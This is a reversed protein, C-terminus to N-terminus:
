PIEAELNAVIHGGGRVAVGLDHEAAFRVAAQVDTLSAAGVAVRLRLPTLLNYTSCDEAHGSEGPLFTPWRVRHRLEAISWASPPTV